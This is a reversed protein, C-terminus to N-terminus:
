PLQATSRKRLYLRAARDPGVDPQTPALGQQNAKKMKMQRRLAMWRGNVKLQGAQQWGSPM